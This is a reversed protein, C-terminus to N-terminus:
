RRRHGRRRRRSNASSEVDDEEAVAEHLFDASPEIPEPLSAPRLDPPPLALRDWLPPPIGPRNRMEMGHQPSWADRFASSRSSYLDSHVFHVHLPPSGAVVRDALVGRLTAADRVSAMRLWFVQEGSPEVSRLIRRVSSRGARNLGTRLWNLVDFWVFYDPLNTVALVRSEVGVFRLVPLGPPLVLSSVPVM